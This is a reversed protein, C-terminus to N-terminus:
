QPNTKPEYGRLFEEIDGFNDIQQALVNPSSYRLQTIKLIKEVVLQDMIFMKYAILDM